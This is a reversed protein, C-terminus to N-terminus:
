AHLNGCAALAALATELRPKQLDKYIRQLDKKLSVYSECTHSILM